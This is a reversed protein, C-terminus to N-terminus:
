EGIQITVTLPQGTVIEASGLVTNSESVTVRLGSREIEFSGVKKKGGNNLSVDPSDPLYEIDVQNIIEPDTSLSIMSIQGWRGRYDENFYTLFQVPENYHLILLESTLSLAAQGEQGQNLLLSFYEVVRVQDASIREAAGVPSDSLEQDLAEHFEASGWLIEKVVPNDTDQPGFLGVKALM